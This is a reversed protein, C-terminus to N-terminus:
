RYGTISTINNEDAIFSEDKFFYPIEVWMKKANIVTGIYEHFDDGALTVVVRRRNQLQEM